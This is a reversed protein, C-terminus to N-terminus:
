GHKKRAVFSYHRGPANSFSARLTLIFDPILFDPAMLKSSIQKKVKQKSQPYLNIDSSAPNLVKELKLGSDTIAGTYEKLLYAHEGGYLNHLPHANLFADLDEKKSIVHERTAVFLGNPKLVRFVEKCLERLDRAHHLVARCYVLDFTNSDFPLSEGWKEIVNVNVGSEKVLSRVAGAGVIDSPDPELATVAWGDNALAYSSIGRGAGIDLAHGKEKPLLERLARWESSRVYRNAASILPDDYFAARVLEAQDPQNRLWQVAEEWTFRSEKYTM